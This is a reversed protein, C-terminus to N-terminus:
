LGLKVNIMKQYHISEEKMSDIPEKFLRIYYGREMYICKYVEKKIKDAMLRNYCEEEWFNLDFISKPKQNASDYYSGNFITRDSDNFFCGYFPHFIQIIELFIKELEDLKESTFTEKDLAIRAVVTNNFNHDQVGTSITLGSSIVDNKSSFFSIVVGLDDHKDNKEIIKKINEVTLEFETANKKSRATLYKPKLYEIQNFINLIRYIQIAQLDLKESTEKSWFVMKYREM